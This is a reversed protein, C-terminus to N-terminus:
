HALVPVSRKRIRVFVGPSPRMVVHSSPRVSVSPDLDFDFKNLFAALAIKLNLVALLNGPCSRPGDGFPFYAFPQHASQHEPSFRDPRFQDADPWYDPHRQTVFPCTIVRDGKRIRCNRVTVDETARRIKLVPIAPYLRMTEHIVQDTFPLQSYHEITQVSEDSTQAAEILLKDRTQPDNGILYLIWALTASTNAFTANLLSTIEQRLQSKPIEEHGPERGLLHTIASFHSESPGHYQDIIREAFGLVFQESDKRSRSWKGPLRKRFSRFPSTYNSVIRRCNERFAALYESAEDGVDVGFLSKCAMRLFMLNIEHYADFRDGSEAFASWRDFESTFDAHTSKVFNRLTSERFLPSLRKSQRYWDTGESLIVGQDAPVTLDQDKRFSKSKKQLVDHLDAPDFFFWMKIPWGLYVTDGHKRQLNELAMVYDNRYDGAFKVLGIGGLVAHDKM